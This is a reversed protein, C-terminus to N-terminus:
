PQSRGPTGPVHKRGQLREFFADKDRIPGHPLEDDPAFSWDLALLTGDLYFKLTKDTALELATHLARRIREKPYPLVSDPSVLNGKEKERVLVEGYAGLVENTEDPLNMRLYDLATQTLPPQSYQPLEQELLREALDPKRTHGHERHATLQKARAVMAAGMVMMVAFAVLTASWAWASVEDKDLLVEDRQSLLQLDLSDVAFSAILLFGTVYGFVKVTKRLTSVKM